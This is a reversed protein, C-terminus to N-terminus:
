TLPEQLPRPGRSFGAGEGTKRAKEGHGVKGVAKADIGVAGEVVGIQQGLADADAELALFFGIDLFVADGLGPDTERDAVTDIAPALGQRDLQLTRDLGPDLALLRWRGNPPM